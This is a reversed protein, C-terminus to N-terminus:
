ADFSGEKENIDISNIYFDIKPQDFTELTNKINPKEANPYTKDIKIVKGNRLLEFKILEGVEFLDSVDSKLVRDKKSIKRLDIDNISIVVDGVKIKNEAYFKKTIKGVIYYGNENTKLAWGPINYEKGEENTWILNPDWYKDLRIGITKQDVDTDLYVDFRESENYITNYFAECRPISMAKTGILCFFLIIFYSKIKMTKFNM